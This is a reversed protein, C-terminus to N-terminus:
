LQGVKDNVQNNTLDLPFSNETNDFDPLNHVATKLSQLYLNEFGLECAISIASEYEESTM